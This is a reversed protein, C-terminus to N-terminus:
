PYVFNSCSCIALREVDVCEQLVARVVRSMLHTFKIHALASGAMMGQGHCKVVRCEHIVFRSFGLLAM